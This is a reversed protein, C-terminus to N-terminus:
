PQDVWQICSSIYWLRSVLSCRLMYELIVFLKGFRVKIFAQTQTSLDFFCTGTALKLNSIAEYSCLRFAFRQNSTKYSNKVMMDEKKWVHMVCNPCNYPLLDAESSYSGFDYSVAYSCSLSRHRLFFSILSFTTWLFYFTSARSKWLGYCFVCLFSLLIWSFFLFFVKTHLAIFFLFIYDLNM